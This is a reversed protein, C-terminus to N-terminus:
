TFRRRASLQAVTQRLLETGGFKMGLAKLKNRAGPASYLEAVGRFASTTAQDYPYWFLRKMRPMTNRAVHVPLPRASPENYTNFVGIAANSYAYGTDLPNNVNRGFDFAGNFPLALGAICGIAM